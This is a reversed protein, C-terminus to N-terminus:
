LIEKVGSVHRFFTQSGNSKELSENNVGYRHGEGKHTNLTIRRERVRQVSIKMKKAWQFIIQENANGLFYMHAIAGSDLVQRNEALCSEECQDINVFVIVQDNKNLSTLSKHEAHDKISAVFETHVKSREEDYLKEWLIVSAERWQDLEAQRRAYSRRKTDSNSYFALLSLPTSNHEWVAWPSDTKIKEYKAWEEESLGWLTRAETSQTFTPQSITNDITSFVYDAQSHTVASLSWITLLNIFQRLYNTFNM